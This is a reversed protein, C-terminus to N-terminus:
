TDYLWNLEKKPKEVFGGVSLFIRGSEVLLYYDKLGEYSPSVAKVLAADNPRRLVALIM